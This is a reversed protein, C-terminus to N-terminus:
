YFFDQLNGCSDCKYCSLEVEGGEAISEEEVGNTYPEDDPYYTYDGVMLATRGGCTNCKPTNPEKVLTKQENMNEDEDVEIFVVNKGDSRYNHFCEGVFLSIDECSEEKFDAFICRKCVFKGLGEVCKLKKKGFQFVEGIKYEEM